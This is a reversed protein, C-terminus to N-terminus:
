SGARWTPVCGRSARNIARGALTLVVAAEIAIVIALPLLYRQRLPYDRAIEAMLVFPIVTM